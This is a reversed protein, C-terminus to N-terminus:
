GAKEQSLKALAGRLQGLAAIAGTVLAVAEALAKPNAAYAQRLRAVPLDLLNEACESAVGLKERVLRVDASASNRAATGPLRQPERGERVHEVRVANRVANDAAPQRMPSAAIRKGIEAQRAPSKVEVLKAASTVSLKGAEVLTKVEPAVGNLNLMTRAWSPSRGFVAALKRLGEADRVRYEPMAAIRAVARSQELPTLDERASNAVVADVYAADGAPVDSVIALMTDLKAIEAARWRREGDVISYPADKKGTARVVVPQLQGRERMSAALETLRDYDFNERPQQYMPSIDVRRISVVSQTAITM